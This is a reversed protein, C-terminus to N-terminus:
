QKGEIIERVFNPCFDFGNEWGIGGFEDISVQKFYAEDLLKQSIGENIFSKVNLVGTFADSFRVMLTYNELPKVEIISNM